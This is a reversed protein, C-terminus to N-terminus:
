RMAEIHSGTIIDKERKQGGTGHVIGLRMDHTQAARRLTIANNEKNSFAM